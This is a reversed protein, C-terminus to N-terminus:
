RFRMILRFITYIHHKEHLIFFHLWEELKMIGFVPHTGARLLTEPSLSILQRSFEKRFAQTKSIIEQTPLDVWNQFGPDNESSYRGVDPTDELLIKEMRKLFVEQYRGLHALHQHISWKEPIHQTLVFEKPLDKVLSLIEEYQHLLSERLFMEM